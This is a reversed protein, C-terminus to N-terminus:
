TMESHLWSQRQRKSCNDDIKIAIGFTKDPHRL